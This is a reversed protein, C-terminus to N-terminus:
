AQVWEPQECLMNWIGDRMFEPINPHAEGWRQHVAAMRKEWGSSPDEGSECAALNAQSALRITAEVWTLTESMEWTRPICEAETQRCTSQSHEESHPDDEDEEDDEVGDRQIECHATVEATALTLPLAEAVCVERLKNRVPIFLNAEAQRATHVEMCIVSEGIQDTARVATDVSVLSAPFLLSTQVDVSIPVRSGKAFSFAVKKVTITGAGLPLKCVTDQSGDGECSAIPAGHATVKATYKAGTVDEDVIGSGVLTTTGGTKITLPALSDVKAHKAGCDSLTVDLTGGVMAELEDEPRTPIHTPVEVIKEVEVTVYQPRKMLDRVKQRLLQLEATDRQRATYIKM